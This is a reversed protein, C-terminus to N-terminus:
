ILLRIRDVRLPASWQSLEFAFQDDFAGLSDQRGRASPAAVAAPWELHGGGLQTEGLGGHTLWTGPDAVQADLEADAPLCQIAV